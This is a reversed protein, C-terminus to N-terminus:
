TMQIQMGARHCSGDAFFCGISKETTKERACLNAVAEESTARKSIGYAVQCEQGHVADIVLTLANLRSTSERSFELKLVPGDFRRDEHRKDFDKSIQGLATIGM